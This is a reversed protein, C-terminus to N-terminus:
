NWRTEGKATTGTLIVVRRGEETPLTANDKEVLRKATELEEPAESHSWLVTRLKGAYEWGIFIAM